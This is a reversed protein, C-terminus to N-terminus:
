HLIGVHIFRVPRFRALHKPTLTTSVLHLGKPLAHSAVGVPHKHYCQM